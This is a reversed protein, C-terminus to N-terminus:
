SRSSYKKALEQTFDVAVGKINQWTEYDRDRLFDMFQRVAEIGNTVYSLDKNLTEIQKRLKSTMDIEAATLVRDESEAKKYILNMQNIAQMEVTLVSSNKLSRLTKWEADNENAWRSVTTEHVGIQEGIEKYSLGQMVYMYQAQSKLAPDTNKPM